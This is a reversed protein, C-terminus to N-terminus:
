EVDISEVRMEDGRIVQVRISSCDPCEFSEGDPIFVKGCDFCRMEVSIRNITLVAGQAITGESIIDWYFNISEDVLSALQGIELNISKISSAHAKEANELAIKLISESVALEHM